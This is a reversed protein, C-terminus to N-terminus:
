DLTLPYPWSGVRFLLLQFTSKKPISWDWECNLLVAKQIVVSQIVVSLMIFSLLVVSLMVANMM